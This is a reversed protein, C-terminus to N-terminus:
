ATDLDPLDRVAVATDGDDLVHPGGVLMDQLVGEAAGSDRVGHGARQERERRVVPGYAGGEGVDEPLPELVAGCALVCVLWAAGAARSRM